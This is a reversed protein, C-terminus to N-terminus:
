TRIPAEIAEGRSPHNSIGAGRVWAWGGNAPTRTATDDTQVLCHVVNRDRDRRELTRSIQYDVMISFTEAGFKDM